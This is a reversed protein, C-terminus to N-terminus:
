RLEMVTVSHAPFVHTFANAAGSVGSEVPAIHNPEELTNREQLGAQVLWQRARRVPFAAAFDIACKVDEAAPNVVKLVLMKGDESLTANANLSGLSECAVLTPQFHDRYLKMVVYNPAPFWGSRDHNIFANDWATADVRRLFLAPSAMQVAECREM